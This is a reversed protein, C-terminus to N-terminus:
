TLWMYLKGDRILVCNEKPWKNMEELISRDIEEWQINMNTQIFYKIFNCVGTPTAIYGWGQQEMGPIYKDLHAELTRGYLSGYDKNFMIIVPMGPEYGDASEIRDVIRVALSYEREYQLYSNMYAINDIVGFFLASSLATIVVLQQLVRQKRKSWFESIVGEYRECLIIPLIFFIAYAVFQRYVRAEDPSVVFAYNAVIPCTVSIGILLLIRISKYNYGRWRFLILKGVIMIITVFTIVVIVRGIPLSFVSGYTLFWYAGGYCKVIGRLVSDVTLAFDRYSQVHAMLLYAKFTIYYVGLSLLILISYKAIQAWIEKIEKGDIVDLAVIVFILLMAVSLMAQYSALSLVWCLVGALNMMRSKKLVLWVGLCAFLVGIAFCHSTYLFCNLTAVTPFSIYITSALIIASRSKLNFTKVIVAFSLSWFLLSMMGLLFPITVRSTARELIAAFWRGELAHWSGDNEFLNLGSYTPLHNVYVFLHILCGCIFTSIFGCEAEHGVWKRIQSILSDVEQM